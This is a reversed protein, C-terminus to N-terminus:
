DRSRRIKQVVRWVLWLGVAAGCVLVGRVLLNPGSNDVTRLSRIANPDVDLVRGRPVTDNLDTGAQMASALLVSDAAPALQSSSPQAVAVAVSSSHATEQAGSPTSKASEKKLTVTAYDSLEGDSTMAAVSLQVDDTRELDTIIMTTRDASVLGIPTGDVALVWSNPLSVGPEWSLTAQTSNSAIIQVNQPAGITPTDPAYGVSVVASTNAITGNSGVVQVQMNGDFPVVYTHRAIATYTTEEFTGDGDFDWKYETIEGDKAYSDSADFTIEQGPDAAYDTNKLMAVPRQEIKGLAQLLADTSNGEDVIVQGSTLDALEQYASSLYSPVVPYVNVPDIELSRKAVREITSGDVLDPNHFGADTLIIAAKGAGNRWDLGNFSTMLAHLAAEPEDGGGDAYLTNLKMQFDTTTEALPSDIRATYDDELDRYSVLAVRGNIARIREASNAAFARAQEIKEIMSGTTDIVFVVDLAESTNATSEDDGLALESHLRDVAEIVAQDIAKDKGAYQGHGEVDGVFKSSGCIFDKAYCWLGTKRLMDNPLYPIRSGLSGGDVKCNAITRRYLSLGEGRCAPPRVGIGEPLYLKPDGFLGVFLIRSRIEVNLSQLSQGMVQAGQSYGALVFYTNSSKCKNYREALHAKLENVGQNVSKGYDFAAGSSIAAGVANGNRWNSVDVAPYQNNNHKATGLEYFSQTHPKKIATEMQNKFRKSENESLTQGSGRAFVTEITVCSKDDAIVDTNPMFCAAAVVFTAAIVAIFRNM